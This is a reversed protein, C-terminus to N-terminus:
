ILLTNLWLKSHLFLRMADAYNLKWEIVVNVSYPCTKLTNGYMRLNLERKTKENIIKTDVNSTSWYTFCTHMGTPNVPQLGVICFM